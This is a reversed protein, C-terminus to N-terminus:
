NVQNLRGNRLTASLKDCLSTQLIICQFSSIEANKDKIRKVFENIKSIMSPAYDTSINVSKNYSINSKTMFNYFTKFFDERRTKGNFPLLALLEDRFVRSEFYFLRV